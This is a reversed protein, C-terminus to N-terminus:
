SLRVRPNLYAYSLDVLTNIVTLLVAVCFVGAVVVPYDRAFVSRVLLRGLGPWAFISETIVSGGIVFRMQLGIQTVVPVLANRVAHYWIVKWGLQGKARATRVYAKGLVDLVSTRTVRVIGGLLFLGLTMVPLVYHLWSGRGSSPLVGLRVAFLMIGMLGLWFIPTSQGTIALFSVLSDILSGRKVAALVGLPLGLLIALMIAALALELTAPMREVVLTLAPRRLQLSRGFDLQVLQGVFNAYRTPLPADFGLSSRFAAIQELPADPPLMLRVPDGSLNIITFVILTLSFLVVVSLIVRRALYSM